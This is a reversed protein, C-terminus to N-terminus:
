APVVYFTRTDVAPSGARRQRPRHRAPAAPAARRDLRHGRDLPHQRRGVRGAERPAPGTQANTVTALRIDRGEYSRGISELTVLDPREAALADLAAMLEDYRYLKDFRMDDVLGSAVWRNRRITSHRSRTREQAHGVGGFGRLWSTVSPSPRAGARSAARPRSSRRRSPAARLDTHRRRPVLDRRAVHGEVPQRLPGLLAHAVRAAERELEHRDRHGVADRHTVLAHPESTLRSIM